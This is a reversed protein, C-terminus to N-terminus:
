RRGCKCGVGVGTSVRAALGGSESGSPGNGLGYVCRQSIPPARRVSALALLQTLLSRDHRVALALVQGVM